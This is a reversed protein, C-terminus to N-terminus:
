VSLDFNGHAFPQRCDERNGENKGNIELPAIKSVVFSIELKQKEEKKSEENKYTALESFIIQCKDHIFTKTDKSWKLMVPETIPRKTTLDRITMVMECDYPVKFDVHHVFFILNFIEDGKVNPDKNIGTLRSYSEECKQFASIISLSEIKFM